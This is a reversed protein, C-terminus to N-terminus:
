KRRGRLAVPKGLVESWVVAQQVPIPQLIAEPAPEPQLTAEQWNHVTPKVNMLSVGEDDDPENVLRGSQVASSQGSMPRSVELSPRGLGSPQGARGTQGSPKPQGSRNAPQPPKPQGAPRMPPQGPRGTRAVPPQRPGKKDLLKGAIGLVIIVIWIISGLDGKM